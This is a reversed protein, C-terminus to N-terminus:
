LFRGTTPPLQHATIINDSQKITTTQWSGSANTKYILSDVNERKVYFIHLKGDRDIVIDTNSKSVGDNTLRITKWSGSANTSYFVDENYNDLWRSFTIYTKDQYVAIAPDHEELM